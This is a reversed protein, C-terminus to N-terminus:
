NLLLGSITIIAALLGLFYGLRQLFPYLDRESTTVLLVYPYFRDFLGRSLGTILLSALAIVLIDGQNSIGVRLGLGIRQLLYAVGSLIAAVTLELKPNAEVFTRLRDEKAAFFDGVETRKQRAWDSDGTIVLQLSDEYRDTNADIELMGASCELSISFTRIFDPVTPDNLLDVVSDFSHVTPGEIIELTLESDENGRQLLDELAALDDGGLRTAPLPIQYQIEKRGM